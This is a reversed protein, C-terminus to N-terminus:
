RDNLPSLPEYELLRPETQLRQSGDRSWSEQERENKKLWLLDNDNM